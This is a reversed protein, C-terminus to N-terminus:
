ESGYRLTTESERAPHLLAGTARRFTRPGYPTEIDYCEKDEAIAPFSLVEWGEKQLVHGALDDEHLRQMVIV